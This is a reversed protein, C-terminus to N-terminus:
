PRRLNEAGHEAVLLPLVATFTSGVGPTSVAYLDGGMLGVLDRCIALGLGLGDHTRTDATDEQTFSEFLAEVHDPPIGIGTDDVVFQVWARAGASRPTPATKMSVTLRVSGSETFKLANGVLNSLVQTIREADGQVVPPLAPDLVVEFQLGSANAQSQAWEVIDDLVDGLRFTASTLKIKGADLRSFDLIDNVLRLLRHCNRDMMATLRGQDRDLRTELLLETAGIVMTLPTRIEHGLNALFITKAANAAELERRMMNAETIDETIAHVGVVQDSVIVPVATVKTERVDGAATVLRVELLQPRREIVAVLAKDSGDIDESHVLDHFRTGLLESPAHGILQQMADNAATVRGELDLSFVGHPSYAFLSRYREAEEALARETPSM